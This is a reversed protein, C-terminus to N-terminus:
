LGLVQSITASFKGVTLEMEAQVVYQAVMLVQEWVCM